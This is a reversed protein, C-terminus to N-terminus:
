EGEELAEYLIKYAEEVVTPPNRRILKRATHVCVAWIIMYISASACLGGIMVALGPDASGGFVMMLGVGTFMAHMWLAQFWLSRSFPNADLYGALLGAGRHLYWFEDPNRRM